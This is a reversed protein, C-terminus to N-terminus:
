NAFIDDLRASLRSGRIDEDIIIGEKDILYIKPVGSVKYTMAVDGDYGKFDSLIRWKMDHKEVAQTVWEKNRDLFVTVIEFDKDHFKEYNKVLTPNEMVCGPCGSSWFGLLVYKGGLDSLTLNNQNMDPLTFDLAMDGVKVDRSLDLFREIKKGFVSTKIEPSFDHYLDETQEKTLGVMLYTLNIAAYLEAPNSRIYELDINNLKKHLERIQESISRFEEPKDHSISDYVRWLSDVAKNKPRKEEELLKMQKQIGSGKILAEILKGKETSVELDADEKWFSVYEYNERDQFSTRLMYNVPHSKEVSFRIKENMIYGSDITQQLESNYLYMITSDEFDKAFVNIQSHNSPTNCASFIVFLTFFLFISTKM